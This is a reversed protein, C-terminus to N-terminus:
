RYIWQILHEESRPVKGGHTDAYAMFESILKGTCVHGDEYHLMKVATAENVSGNVHGNQQHHTQGAPAPPRAVPTNGFLEDNLDDIDVHQRPPKMLQAAQWATMYELVAYAMQRADQLTMGVNIKKTAQGAPTVAGTATEKGPGSNLSFWVKGKDKDTNVRLVRSVVGNGDATGKFDVFEVPKNWSLDHLL